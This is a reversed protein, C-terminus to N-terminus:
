KMQSIKLRECCHLQPRREEQILCKLGQLQSWWMTEFSRSGNLGQRQTVGWFFTSKCITQKFSANLVKSGPM